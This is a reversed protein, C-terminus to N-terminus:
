LGDQKQIGSIKDIRKTNRRNLIFMHLLAQVGILPIQFKISKTFPVVEKEKHLIMRNLRSSYKMALSRFCGM